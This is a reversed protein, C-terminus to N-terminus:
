LLAAMRWPFTPAWFFLVWGLALPVDYNVMTTREIFVPASFLFAVPLLPLVIKEIPLLSQKATKLSDELQKRGLLYLFWALALASVVGTMRLAVESKGFIATVAALVYIVLPPKELWVQGNYTMELSGRDIMEWAVRSYISEDWDYLQTPAFLFSRWLCSVVLFAFLMWVISDTKNKM